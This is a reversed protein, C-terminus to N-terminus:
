LMSYDITLSQMLQLCPRQSFIRVGPCLYSEAGGGEGFKIRELFFTKDDSLRLKELFTKVDRPRLKELIKEHTELLFFPNVYRLRLKEWM